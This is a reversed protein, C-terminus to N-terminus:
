ARASLKNLGLLQECPDIVFGEIRGSVATIEEYWVIPIMPLETHMVTAIEKRLRRREDESMTDLYAAVDARMKDSRWGVPATDSTSAITDQVLEVSMRAIPDPITALQVSTLGLDLTGDERGEVIAEWEGVSIELEYGIERFQSQFATAIAPLEARNAFTRVAGAFRAGDKTRIGDEGKAWGAEDLLQNAKEVNQQHVLDSFHWDPFAPPLFQTAALAPNRMISAAIGARDMALSLAQRVRVDSFQPKNCNPILIHVRPIIIRDLKMQGASQVRAVSPMPINLVLDADGAAAINARTEGNGVAEYRVRAIKAKEGWYSDHRALSLSRPVDAEVLKYPGISVPTIVKGEADFASPALVPVRPDLLYTAFPSFPKAFRFIVENGDAEITTVGTAKFFASNDRQREYSSRVTDATVQTGDHFVVGDRLKFRWELGDESTTWSEAIGPLVKGAPDWTVLGETVGVKNFVNSNEAPRVSKFEWPQVVVLEDSDSAGLAFNAQTLAFISASGVLFTRRNLAHTTM